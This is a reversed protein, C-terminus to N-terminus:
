GEVQRATIIQHPIPGKIPRFRDKEVWFVRWLRWDRGTSGEFAKQPTSCPYNAM